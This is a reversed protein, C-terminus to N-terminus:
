NPPTAPAMRLMIAVIAAAIINAAVCALTPLTYDATV